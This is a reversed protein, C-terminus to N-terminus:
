DRTDNGRGILDGGKKDKDFKENFSIAWMELWTKASEDSTQEKTISRKSSSYDSADFSFPHDVYKHAQGKAFAKLAPALASIAHYVYAGQLWAQKDLEKQKIEYAKRTMKPMENDGNWFEDYTMGFSM